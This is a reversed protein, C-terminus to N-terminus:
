PRRRAPRSRSAGPARPHPRARRGPPSPSRRPPRGARVGAPSGSAARTPIAVPRTTTPSRTPSPAARSSTTTPSVGFRAARSCARASGPLTTMESAVRRRTPPMNSSSSRPGADSLPMSAGTRAKATIPSRTTSSRNSAGLRARRQRQDAALLLQGAEPGSPARWPRRPAPRGARRRARSRCTAGRARAAPAAAPSRARAHAVVARRVVPVTRQVRHDLMEARRRAEGPSSPRRPEGLQLRQQPGLRRGRLPRATGRPGARGAAPRACRKRREGRLPLLRSREPRQHGPRPPLPRLRHQQHELVRVPAVRARELQDRSTSGSARGTSSITVKRDVNAGGQAPM